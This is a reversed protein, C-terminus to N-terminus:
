ENAKIEVFILILISALIGRCVKERAISPTSVPSVSSFRKAHWRHIHVCTHGFVKTEHMCGQTYVKRTHKRECEYLRPVEALTLTEPPHVCRKSTIDCLSM